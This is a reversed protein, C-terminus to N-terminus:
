TQGLYGMSSASKSTDTIKFSYTAKTGSEARFQIGTGSGPMRMSSMSFRQPLCAGGIVVALSVLGSLIGM